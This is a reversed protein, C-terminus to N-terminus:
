DDGHDHKKHGPANENYNEHKLQGLHKGKDGSKKDNSKTEWKGSKGDKKWEFSYTFPEDSDMKVIRILDMLMEKQQNSNNDWKGVWKQLVSYAEKGDLKKKDDETELTIKATKGDWKIELKNKDQKLQIKLEEYRTLASSTDEEAMSVKEVAPKSAEKTEQNLAPTVDVQQHVLLYRVVNESNSVVKLEDGLQINEFASEQDNIMIKTEPQVTVHQKGQGDFIILSRKEKNLYSVTGEKPRVTENITEEAATNQDITEKPIQSNDAWSIWTFSVIFTFVMGIGIYAMKKM